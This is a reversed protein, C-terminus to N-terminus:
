EGEKKPTVSALYSDIDAQSVQQVFDSISLDKRLEVPLSQYKEYIAHIYEFYEANDQPLKTLDLVEDTFTCPQPLISKDGSLAFKRLINDLGVDSAQSEITEKISRKTEKVEPVIIYENDTGEVPVVKDIIERDIYFEDWGSQGPSIYDTKKLVGNKDCVLVSRPQFISYAM